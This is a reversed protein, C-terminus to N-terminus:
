RFPKEELMFIVKDKPRGIGLQRCAFDLRFEFPMSHRFYEGAEWAQCRCPDHISFRCCEILELVKSM